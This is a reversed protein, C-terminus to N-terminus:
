ADVRSPQEAEHTTADRRRRVLTAAGFFLALTVLVGIVGALGGSVASNTIGHIGYDALPGGAVASERAYEAIGLKEGVFELGDPHASAFFSVAAAAVLTTLLALGFPGRSAKVATPQDPAVTTTPTGDIDVLMLDPRLHRAVYILDPRSAMVAGVVAVSILGEGIGILLHWGIMATALQNLPVSVAGGVAYLATFVVAAAPVSLFAAIGVAPGVSGKRQPLVRLLAVTLVFGVFVTALGMDLINTGLATLGGDAFLLGQVLLVVAMCLVGTWPGVLAAALAGGLLHGSTGAGVPFNVMQVAFIFAAILGALAPGSEHIERNARRLSIGLAGAAVVGTAISTPVDLFGDPVHMGPMKASTASEKCCTGLVWLRHHRDFLDPCVLSAM